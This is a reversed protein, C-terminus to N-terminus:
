YSVFIDYFINIFYLCITQYHAIIKTNSKNIKNSDIAIMKYYNKFYNYDILCGTTYDDGQGNAIKKINESTRLSCKSASWFLKKPLIYITHWTRIANDEFSLVFLRNVGQFGPDILYDLYPNQWQISKKWYKQMIM